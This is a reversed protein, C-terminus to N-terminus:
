HELYPSLPKQPKPNKKKEKSKKFDKLHTIKPKVSQMDDFDQAKQLVIIKM